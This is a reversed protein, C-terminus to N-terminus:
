PRPPPTYKWLSVPSPETEGPRNRGSKLRELARRLPEADFAITTHIAALGRWRGFKESFARGAEREPVQYAEAALRRLWRDLPLRSYDRCALVAALSATYEGVGKVEMVRDISKCDLEWVRARALNLVTSARYGLGSARLTEYTLREPRPTPLYLRGDPTVLPTSANLHLRYLMNWGQRFSANQQCVGVLLSYWISARRLRMGPMTEVVGGVLPDGRGLSIYDSLDENVGLMDAVSEVREEWCREGEASYVRVALTGSASGWDIRAVSNNCLEILGESGGWYMWGFSYVTMTDRPSYHKVDYKIEFSYVETLKLPELGM